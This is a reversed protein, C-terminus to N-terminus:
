LGTWIFERVKLAFASFDGVATLMGRLRVPDVFKPFQQGFTTFCRRPIHELSTTVSVGAAAEPRAEVWLEILKSYFEALEVDPLEQGITTYRALYETAKASLQNYATNVTSSVTVRSSDCRQVFKKMEWLRFMLYGQAVRHIVLADGGPDTSKFGPPEVRVIEETPAELFLFYWLLEGVSGELHDLPVFEPDEPPGFIPKIFANLAARSAGSPSAGGDVCQKWAQYHQPCGRCLHEMIREALAKALADTPSTTPDHSTLTWAHTETKTESSQFFDSLEISM